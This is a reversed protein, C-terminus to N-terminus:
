LFLIEDLVEEEVHPNENENINIQAAGTWSYLSWGESRICTLKESPWSTPYDRSVRPDTLSSSSTTCLLRLAVHRPERRDKVAGDPVSTPIRTVISDDLVGAMKGETDVRINCGFQLGPCPPDTRHLDAWDCSGSACRRMIEPKTCGLSHSDTWQCLSRQCSVESSVKTFLDRTVEGRIAPKTPTASPPAPPPSWSFMEQRTPSAARPPSVARPPPPAALRPDRPNPGKLPSPCIVPSSPPRTLNSSKKRRPDRTPSFTPSPPPPPAEAQIDEVREQKM